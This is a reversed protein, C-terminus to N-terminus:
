ITIGTNNILRDLVSDIVTMLRCAASYAKQYQMMNMAEDNLDVGSVGDRSTDIDVWQTNYSNLQVNFTRQNTGLTAAMSSFMDNFSGEFLKKSVANPDLDQPNYVLAEDIKSIMHDINTNQTTNAVSGGFLMTFTPVVQM